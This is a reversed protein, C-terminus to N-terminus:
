QQSAQWFKTWHRAEEATSRWANGYRGALALAVEWLEDTVAHNGYRRAETLQWGETHRAIEVTAMAQDNQLVRFIRSAGEACRPGYHDICNAMDVAEQALEMENTLPVFKFGNAEHTELLSNWCLFYGQNRELIYRRRQNLERNNIERHWRMSAKLYGNWTRARIPQNVQNCHVVYDRVDAFQGLLDNGNIESERFAAKILRRTNQRALPSQIFKPNIQLSLDRCVREIVSLTPTVGSEAVRSSMTAADPPNKLDINKVVFEYDLAAFNKWNSLNFGKAALDSRVESIIEGPHNKHPKSSYRSACLFYWAAAGPNTRRM